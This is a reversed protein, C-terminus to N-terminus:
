DTAAAASQGRQLDEGAAFGGSARENPTTDPQAAQPSTLFNSTAKGIIETLGGFESCDMVQSDAIYDQNKAKHLKKVWINRSCVNPAYFRIEEPSKNDVSRDKYLSFVKNDKTSQIIQCKSLDISQWDKALVTSRRSSEDYTQAEDFFPDM